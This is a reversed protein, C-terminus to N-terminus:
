QLTTNTPVAAPQKKSNEIFDLLGRAFVEAADLPMVLRGIVVRNIPGPTSVHNVRLADFTVRVNGGLFFLGAVGDAFFDPAHANDVFVPPKPTIATM